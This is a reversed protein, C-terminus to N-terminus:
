VRSLVARLATGRLTSTGLKTRHGGDPTCGRFPGDTSLLVSMHHAAHDRWWVTM